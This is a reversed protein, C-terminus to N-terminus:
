VKENWPSNIITEPARLLCSTIEDVRNDTSSQAVFCSENVDQALEITADVVQRYNRRYLAMHRVWFAKFFDPLIDQEIYASTVGETTACQKVVKLVIKKMEEDSSQILIVTVGKTYYSAYEPDMLPIIFGIAKL